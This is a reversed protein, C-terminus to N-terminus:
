CWGKEGKRKAINVLSDLFRIGWTGITDIVHRRTEEKENKYFSDFWAMGTTIRLEQKALKGSDDDAFSWFELTGDADAGGSVVLFNKKQMMKRKNDKMDFRVFAASSANKIIFETAPRTRSNSRVWSKAEGDHSVTHLRDLASNSIVGKVLGQHLGTSARESAILEETHAQMAKRDEGFSFMWERNDDYRLITLSTVAADKHMVLPNSGRTGSKQVSSFGSYGHDFVEVYGDIFGFALTRNDESIALSTAESRLEITQEISGSPSIINAQKGQVLILNGNYMCESLSIDSLGEKITVFSGNDFRLIEGETVIYHNNKSSLCQVGPSNLKQTVVANERDIQSTSGFVRQLDIVHALHTNSELDFCLTTLLHSGSSSISNIKGYLPLHTM